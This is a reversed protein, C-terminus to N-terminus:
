PVSPRIGTCPQASGSRQAVTVARAHQHRIHWVIPPPLPVTLASKLVLASVTMPSSL